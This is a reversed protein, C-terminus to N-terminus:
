QSTRAASANATKAILEASERDTFRAMPKDEFALINKRGDPGAVYWLPWDDTNDSASRAIYPGAGRLIVQTGEVEIKLENM